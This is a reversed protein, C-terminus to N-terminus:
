WPLGCLMIKGVPWTQNTLPLIMVCTALNYHRGNQIYDVSNAVKQWGCHNYVPQTEDACILLGFPVGIKNRMFTESKLLLRTALGQKQWQPHTAVGGVGAVWVSEEGVLIERKLLCLQTILEGDFCGLAMWDHSSWEITNASSDNQDKGSFARSDLDNIMRNLEASTDKTSVFSINLDIM